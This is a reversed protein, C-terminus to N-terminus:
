SRYVMLPVNSRKFNLARVSDKLDANVRTQMARCTRCCCADLLWDDQVGTPSPWALQVTMARDPLIRPTMDHMAYRSRLMSQDGSRRQAALDNVGTFNRM